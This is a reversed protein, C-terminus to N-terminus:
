PRRSYLIDSRAAGSNRPLRFLMEATWIDRTEDLQLMEDLWLPLIGAVAVAAIAFLTTSLLAGRILTM